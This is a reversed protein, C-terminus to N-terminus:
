DHDSQPEQKSPTISGDILTTKFQLAEAITVFMNFQMNKCNELQSIRVRSMGTLEALQLQTMGRYERMERILSGPTRPIKLETM